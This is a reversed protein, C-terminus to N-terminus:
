VVSKRDGWEGDIEYEYKWVEEVITRKAECEALVRDPDGADLGGVQAADYASPPCEDWEQKLSQAALEDEAVRALIFEAITVSGM